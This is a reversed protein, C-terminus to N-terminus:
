YVLEGDVNTDFGVVLGPKVVVMFMQGVAMTYADSADLILSCKGPLYSIIRMLVKLVFTVKIARCVNEM